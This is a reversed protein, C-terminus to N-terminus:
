VLAGSCLQEIAALECLATLAELPTTAYAVAGFGLCSAQGEARYRDQCRSLVVRLVDAPHEKGCVCSSLM